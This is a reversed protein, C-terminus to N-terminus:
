IKCDAPKIYGYKKDDWTPFKKKQLNGKPRGTNTSAGPYKSSWTSDVAVTIGNSPDPVYDFDDTVYVSEADAATPTPCFGPVADCKLLVALEMIHEGLFRSCGHSVAARMLDWERDNKPNYRAIYQKKYEPHGKSVTMPPADVSFTIPGHMAYNGFYSIFPFGGFRGKDNNPKSRVKSQVKFQGTKTSSGDAGVAIPYVIMVARKGTLDITETSGAKLTKTIPIVHAMSSRNNKVYEYDKESLSGVVRATLGKKSMTIFPTMVTYDFSHLPGKYAWKCDQPDRPCKDETPNRYCEAAWHPSVGSVTEVESMGVNKPKCGAVWLAVLPILYFFKM